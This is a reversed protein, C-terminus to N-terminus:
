RTEIQFNSVNQKEFKIIFLYLRKLEIENFKNSKIFAFFVNLVELFFSDIINFHSYENMKLSQTDFYIIKKLLSSNL